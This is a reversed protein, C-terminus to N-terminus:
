DVPSLLSKLVSLLSSLFLLHRTGVARISAENSFLLLNDPGVRTDHRWAVHCVNCGFYSGITAM